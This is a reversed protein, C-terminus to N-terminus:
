TLEYNQVCSRSKLVFDRSGSHVSKSVGKVGSIYVTHTPFFVYYRYSIFEVGWMNADDNTINQFSIHKHTYFFITLFDLCIIKYEMYIFLSSHVCLKEVIVIGNVYCLGLLGLCIVAGNTLRHVLYPLVSATCGLWDSRLKSRYFHRGRMRTTSCIWLLIISM